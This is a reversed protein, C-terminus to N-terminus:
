KNFYKKRKQFNNLKPAKTGSDVIEEDLKTNDQDSALEVVDKCEVAVGRRLWRTASGLKDCIEYEKGSEFALVEGIYADEIFKLKM